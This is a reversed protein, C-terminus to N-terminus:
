AKSQEKPEVPTGTLLQVIRNWVDQALVIIQGAMVKFDTKWNSRNNLKEIDDGGTYIKSGSKQVNKVESM